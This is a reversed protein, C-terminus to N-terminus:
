NINPHHPLLLKVVETKRASAGYILVTTSNDNQNNIDINTVLLLNM